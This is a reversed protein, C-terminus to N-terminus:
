GAVGVDVPWVWTWRGGVHGGVRDGVHGGVRDGAVGVAM